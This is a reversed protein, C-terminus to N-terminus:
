DVYFEPPDFVYRSVPSDDKAGRPRFTAFIVIGIVVVVAASACLFWAPPLPFKPIQLNPSKPIQANQFKPMKVNPCKSIVWHWCALIDFYKKRPAPAGTTVRRLAGQPKARPLPSNPTPLPSNKKVGLEESRVGLEKAPLEYNFLDKPPADLSSPSPELDLLSTELNLNKPPEAAAGPVQAKGTSGQVKKPAERQKAHAAFALAFDDLLPAPDLGVCSAYLKIFSRGYIPAAVRRFSEVELDEVIQLLMRTTEAVQATTLGRRERAERLIKGFAM